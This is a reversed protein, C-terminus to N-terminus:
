RVVEIHTVIYDDNVKIMAFRVKDGAHIAELQQAQKVRYSMTMAPMKVSSIEGHQLTIKGGMPDVKKVVGDTLPMAAMQASNMQQKAEHNVGHGHQEAAFAGSSALMVVFLSSTLIHKM